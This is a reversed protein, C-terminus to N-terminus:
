MHRSRHKNAKGTPTISVTGMEKTSEVIKIWTGKEHTWETGNCEYSGDDSSLVRSIVLEFGGNKRPVLRIAGDAYRRSFRQGVVVDGQPGFM